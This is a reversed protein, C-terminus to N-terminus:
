SRKHRTPKSFRSFVLSGLRGSANFLLSWTKEKFIRMNLVLSPIFFLAMLPPLYSAINLLSFKYDKYPAPFYFILNNRMLELLYYLLFLSFIALIAKFNAYNSTKESRFFSIGFFITSFFCLVGCFAMFLSIKRSNLPTKYDILRKYEANKPFLDPIKYFHNGKALEEKLDFKIQHKYDHYFNLYVIEAKLDRIITLLTGDGIKERCVHMTDSLATCFTLSTDIKNKLFTVGKQYKDQKVGSLDAIQSPCFNALVYKTENGIVMTDPEVVLYKGSKDVYIFVDEIFFAYDYQSIYAKVEEVTKCRHLIEKLYLTPNTITKKHTKPLLEKEPPASALRSFTLGFENMGTQPAIGNKGDIRGGTFVAGYETAIKANEFWIQCNLYYADFNSGVMTKDGLSVKYSSCAFSNQAFILMLVAFFTHMKM